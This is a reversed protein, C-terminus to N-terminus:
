GPVAHHPSRKLGSHGRGGCRTLGPSSRLRRSQNAPLPNGAWAPGLRPHPRHPEAAVVVGPGPRAAVWPRCAGGAPLPAAPRLPSPARESHTGLRPAALGALTSTRGPSKTRPDTGASASASATATATAGHTRGAGTGLAPVARSAEGDPGGSRGSPARRTGGAAPPQALARPRTRTPEPSSRPARLARRPPGWASARGQASWSRGASSLPVEAGAAGFHPLCPSPPPAATRVRYGVCVHVGHCKAKRLGLRPLQPSRPARRPSPLLAAHRVGAPARRLRASASRPSWLAGPGARSVSTVSEQLAAVEPPAARGRLSGPAPRGPSPGCPRRWGGRPM